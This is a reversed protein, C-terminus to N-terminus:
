GRGGELRKWRWLTLLMGGLVWAEGAVLTWALGHAGWRMAAYWGVGINWCVGLLTGWLLGQERGLPLLVQFGLFSSLASFLLFFAMVKLLPTVEEYGPGLMVQVLFPALLFILGSLGLGVSFLVAGGYLMWRHAEKPDHIVQFSLRPFLLRNIPAWLNVLPRVLREGAAYHSVQVMPLLLSALLLNANNYLATVLNYVFLNFGKRLWFLGGSLGPWAVKELAWFFGLGNSLFLGLAQLYLPLAADEPGRVLLFVGLTYLFRTSVEIVAVTSMMEVAQFFWIFNFSSGISALLLGGVISWEGRLPPIFIAILVGFLLAVPLLLLRAHIVGALVKGLENPKYRVQSAQRTASFMFGYELIWFLHQAIAQALLFKGFSESGLTRALHPFTVLPSLYNIVQIFYLYFLSKFSTSKSFVSRSFVNKGWFRSFSKILVLLRMAFM